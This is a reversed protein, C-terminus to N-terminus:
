VSRQLSSLVSYATRFVMRLWLPHAEQLEQPEQKAPEVAMQVGVSYDTPGRYCIWQGDRSGDDPVDSVVESMVTTVSTARPAYTEDFLSDSDSSYRSSAVSPPSPVDMVIDTVDVVPVLSDTSCSAAAMGDDVGFPKVSRARYVGMRNRPAPESVLLPKPEPISRLIYEDEDFAARLSDMTDRRKVHRRGDWRMGPWWQDDGEARPGTDSAAHARGKGKSKRRRTASDDLADGAEATPSEPRKVKKPSVPPFTPTDPSRVDRTRKGSSDHPGLLALNFPRIPGFLDSKWPFTFHMPSLTRLLIEPVQGRSSPGTFPVAELDLTLTSEPPTQEPLRSPGAIASSDVLNPMSVHSLHYMGDDTIAPPPAAAPVSKRRHRRHRRKFSQQFWTELRWEAVGSALVASYRKRVSQLTLTFCVVDDFTLFYANKHRSFLARQRQAFVSM